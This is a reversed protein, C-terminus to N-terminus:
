IDDRSLSFIFELLGDESDNIQVCHISSFQNEIEDKEKESNYNFELSLTTYKCKDHTLSNLLLKEVEQINQPTLFNEQNLVDGAFDYSTIEIFDYLPFFPKSFIEEEYIISGSENDVISVFGGKYDKFYSHDSGRFSVIYNMCNDFPAKFGKSNSNKSNNFVVDYSKKSKEM